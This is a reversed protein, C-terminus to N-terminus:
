ERVDTTNPVSGASNTASAPTSHARFDVAQSDAVVPYFIPHKKEEKEPKKEPVGPKIYPYNM